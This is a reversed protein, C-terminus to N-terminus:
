SAPEPKAATDAAPPMSSPKLRLGLAEAFARLNSRRVYYRGRIYEVLEAPVDANAIRNATDRYNLPLGDILPALEHAVRTRVILDDLADPDKKMPPEEIHLLHGVQHMATRSSASKLNIEREGLKQSHAHRKPSAPGHRKMPHSRSTLTLQRATKM